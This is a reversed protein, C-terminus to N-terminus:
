CVFLCDFAILGGLKELNLDYFLPFAIRVGGVGGGGGGGGGCVCM